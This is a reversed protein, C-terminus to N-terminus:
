VQPEASTKLVADYVSAVARANSAVSFREANRSGADAIRSRLGGDGALKTVAAALADIDGPPVLIGNVGNDIIERPGGADSAIVPRRAAMAEPVVMGFPEPFVSAHAVIDVAAYFEEVNARYGALIFSRELGAERICDKIATFYRASGDAEDGVIVARVRENARIALIMAKTFELQGKWRIVRGFIGVAIDSDNLGLESRIRARASAFKAVRAVDVPDHVVTVGRPVIGHARMSDVVAESVAIVHSTKRLWSDGVGAEAIGRMHVILPVGALAVAGLAENPVFGNNLHVLDIRNRRIIWALRVSNRGVEMLDALAFGKRAAWKLPRSKIAAVVRDKNRYNFVRRFRLVHHGSFWMRIIEADQSTLVFKEVSGLAGLTLSLSKVAGGFGLSNDVYLVRIPRSPWSSKVGSHRV